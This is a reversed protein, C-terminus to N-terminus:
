FLGGCGVFSCDVVDKETYGKSIADQENEEFFDKCIKKHNDKIDPSQSVQNKSNNYAQSSEAKSNNKDKISIGVAVGALIIGVVAIGLIKKLQKKIITM